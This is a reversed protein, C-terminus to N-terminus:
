RQGLALRDQLVGGALRLDDVQGVAQVGHTRLNVAGSGGGDDNVAHGGEGARAVADNRVADFGAGIGHRNGHGAAVNQQFSGASIEQFAGQFDQLLRTSFDRGGIRADA